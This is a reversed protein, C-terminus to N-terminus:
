SLRCCYFYEMVICYSLTADGHVDTVGIQEREEWSAMGLFGYRIISWPGVELPCGSVGRGDVLVERGKIEKEGEGRQEGITDGHLFVM